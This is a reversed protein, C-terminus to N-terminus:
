GNLDTLADDDGGAQDDEVHHGQGPGQHGPVLEREVEEQGVEAGAEAQECM